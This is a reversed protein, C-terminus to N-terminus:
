HLPLTVQLSTVLRWTVPPHSTCQYSLRHDSPHQQSPCHHSSCRPHSPRRFSSCWHPPLSTLHPTIPTLTIPPIHLATLTHYRYTHSLLSLTRHHSHRHLIYHPKRDIHRRHLYRRHTHTPHRSQLIVAILMQLGACYLAICSVICRLALYRLFTNRLAFSTAICPLVPCRPIAEAIYPLAAHDNATHFLAIRQSGVNSSIFWHTVIRLPITSLSLCRGSPAAIHCTILHLVSRLPRHSYRFPLRLFPSQCSLVYHYVYTSVSHSVFPSPLACSLQHIQHQRFQFPRFPLMHYPAFPCCGPNGWRSSAAMIYGRSAAL